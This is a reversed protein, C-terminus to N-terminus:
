DQQLGLLSDIQVEVGVEMTEQSHNKKNVKGKDWLNDYHMNVRGMSNDSESTFVWFARRKSSMHGECRM